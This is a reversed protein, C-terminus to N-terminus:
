GTPSKTVKADEARRAELHVFFVQREYRGVARFCEERFRRSLEGLATKPKQRLLAAINGLVAALRNCESGLAMVCQYEVSWGQHVKLADRQRCHACRGDVLEARDGCEECPKEDLQLLRTAVKGIQELAEFSDTPNLSHASRPPQASGQGTISADAETPPSANQPDDQDEDVIYPGTPKLRQVARQARACEDRYRQVVNRHWAAHNNAGTRTPFRRGSCSPCIWWRVRRGRGGRDETKWRDVIGAAEHEQYTLPPEPEGSAGATKARPCLKSDKRSAGRRKGAKAKQKDNRM